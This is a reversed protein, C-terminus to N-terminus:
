QVEVRLNRIIEVEVMGDVTEKKGVDGCGDEGCEVGGVGVGDGTGESLEM